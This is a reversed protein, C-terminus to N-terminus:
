NSILKSLGTAVESLMFTVTKEQNADYAWNKLSIYAKTGCKRGNSDELINEGGLNGKMRAIFSITRNADKADKETWESVSKGLLRLNRTIPSRDESALKSCETKSWAELESASMNTSETYKRHIERIEEKDM